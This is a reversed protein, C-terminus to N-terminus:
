ESYQRDAVQREPRRQKFLIYSKGDVSATLAYGGGTQQGAQRETYGVYEWNNITAKELFAHNDAGWLSTLSILLLEIM